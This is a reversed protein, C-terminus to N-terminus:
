PTRKKKKPNALPISDNGYGDNTREAWLLHWHTCPYLSDALVLQIQFGMAQLQRIMSGAIEPKTHYEEGPKFRERPKYVEFRLPLVMREVPAYATVVVIGNEKKEVNGIYQRKVYDTM